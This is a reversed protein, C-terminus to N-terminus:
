RLKFRKVNAIIMPKRTKFKPSPEILIRFPM